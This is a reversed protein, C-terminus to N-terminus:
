PNKNRLWFFLSQTWLIPMVVWEIACFNEHLWAPEVGSLGMVGFAAWAATVGLFLIGGFSVKADRDDRLGRREVTEATKVATREKERTREKSAGFMALFHGKREESAANRRFIGFFRSRGGEERERPVAVAM